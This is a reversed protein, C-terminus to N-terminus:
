AFAAELSFPSEHAGKSVYVFRGEKRSSAFGGESLEIIVRQVTDQPFGVGKSLNDLRVEEGISDLFILTKFKVDKSLIKKLYEFTLNAKVLQQQMETIQQNFRQQEEETVTAKGEFQALKTKATTLDSDM